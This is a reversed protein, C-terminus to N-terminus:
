IPDLILEWELMIARVFAVALFDTPDEALAFGKAFPAAKPVWDLRNLGDAM